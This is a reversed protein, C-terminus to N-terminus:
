PNVAALAAACRKCEWGDSTAVNSCFTCLMRKNACARRYGDLKKFLVRPNTDFPFPTHNWIAYEIADADTTQLAKEALEQFTM